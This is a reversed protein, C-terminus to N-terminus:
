ISDRCEEKKSTAKPNKIIESGGVAKYFRVMNDLPQGRWTLEFDKSANQTYLFEQIDQCDTITLNMDAMTDLRNKVARSVIQATPTHEMDIEGLDPINFVGKAKVGGDTPVAVYNNVDKQYFALYECYEMNLKTLVEWETVVERVKADLEKPYQMTIGDTNASIVDAGIDHTMAVLALLAIQGTVTVSSMIYPDYFSSFSDNTKGFTGNIVIKLAENVIKNGARKAEVRETVIAEFTEKFHDVGEIIWHRPSFGQTLMLSPYYATVDVDMLITQYGPLWCGAGDMSHLGGVGM